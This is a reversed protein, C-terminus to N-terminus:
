FRGYKEFADVPRSGQLIEKRVLNETHVVGEAKTIVEDAVAGPIVVVGDRDGLVYDGPRVKVSGITIPVNYDVMEWRGLIDSPTTYRCFVPFEIRRMYETDRAGGDIVAGCAGRHKATEASLEGLHASVSDNPQSVLVDGAQIDGLMGLFPIYVEDPNTKTSPKGVITLARGALTWGPVFCQIAHPLVQSTLGMEDLIDTVAGSYPIAALRDVLDLHATLEAMNSLVWAPYLLVPKPEIRVKKVM